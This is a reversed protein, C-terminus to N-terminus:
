RRKVNGPVDTSDKISNSSAPTDKVQFSTLLQLQATIPRLAATLAKHISHQVSADLAQLPDVEDNFEGVEEYVEELYAVEDSLCKDAMIQGSNVTWAVSPM